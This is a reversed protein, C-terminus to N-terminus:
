GATASRRAHRACMARLRATWLPGGSDGFCGSYLPKRGDGDISCRMRADFRELTSIRVGKFMRACTRDSITKLPAGRLTSDLSSAESHGSGPAYRRGRGLIMAERVDAGGLTVFPVGSVPGAFAVIAVDDLFNSTGNRRRWNPHMAVHTAAHAAGAVSVGLRDTTQGAVCHAATLMRDAAVLTAGCGGVSGFWPVTAPDVAAGNVVAGAPVAGACAALVGLLAPLALQKLNM